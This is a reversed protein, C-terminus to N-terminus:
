EGALEPSTGHIDSYKRTDLLIEYDTKMFDNRVFVSDDEYEGFHNLSDKGVIDDVDELIEDYDNTLVGDAYYTLSVTEYDCGEGFEEPAIVYPKDTMSTGGKKEEENSSYNLEEIQSVYEKKEEKEETVKPIDDSETKDAKRKSFVEKVSDIEEQAIKKYKNELFKWSILSGVALGAVFIVVKEIKDGM